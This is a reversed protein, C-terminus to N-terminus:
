KTVRFRYLHVQYPTFRDRLEGASVHVTRSEDILEVNSVDSLETSKLTVEAERNDMGVTFLYNTGELRKMMTAIPLNNESSISFEAPVTPSNLVRALQKIQANIGSVAQLLEPDELLSAEIFHPKFQHVFYVIGRSGHILSMWVESRIQEPTPKVEINSIRAAEICNWVTRNPGAWERLREVGRGVFELKGAIDKHDHVAPYIDFSVIDAGKVYEPYDEPKNRRVGRGIYNDWAVGQGLNLFVPRSPDAARIKKYDAQIESPLIPPGWGKQGAPLPQANDPEDGHMWAVITPNDKQELAFTNQHCIVPMGSKELLKLQEATPGRHLGVYLNIGAAKFKEANRPHQLWVALPFYNSDQLVTQLQAAVASQMVSIVILVRFM